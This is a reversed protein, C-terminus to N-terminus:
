RRRRVKTGNTEVAGAPQLDGLTSPGAFGDASRPKRVKLKPPAPLEPPTEQNVVVEQGRGKRAAIFRGMLSGAILWTVPRLSSNPILDVLNAVLVIVLGATAFSIEIRRRKLAFLFTAATLTGFVAIYGVWGYMGIFIIWSGDTVSLDEGTYPDFVRNRGWTGWGFVPRENAKELLDDEHDLRFKLSQAREASYELAAAHIEETPIYGAGRLMPYLIVVGALVAGVLLQSRVKMFLIVPLLALSILLAGVSKALVLTFLLWGTCFLWPAANAGTQRAHRWLAAASLVCMALLIGLSLGHNMFVMPRFGGARIHQLFSSATFGYVMRNLQPSMRVEYLALLSYGMLALCFIQMMTVHSDTTNLYKWGVWFPLIMFIISGLISFLDYARLAPLMTPGYFLPDGNTMVTLIPTAIIAILLGGALLRARSKRVPTNNADPKATKWRNAHADTRVKLWCMFAVSISTLEYKSISPIAPLDLQLVAPLFLFGIITSWAIAQVMPLRQFMVYVVLPWSYFVVHAVLNPM